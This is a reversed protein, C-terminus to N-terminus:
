ILLSGGAHVRRGTRLNQMTKPIVFAIGARDTSGNLHLHGSVASDTACPKAIFIIRASIWTVALTTLAGSSRHEM